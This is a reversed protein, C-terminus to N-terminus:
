DENVIETPVQGEPMKRIRDHAYKYTRKNSLSKLVYRDGELVETIQFPGRFKADLKMQNREENEILVYEGVSFRSVSAKNSDFRAKNYSASKEISKSASQRIESLDVVVNNDDAMLDLPRAVKGILLELPSAKTTRNVTCNIALQVEGLSDQWSRDKDSEVATLMSKLVSMIREVQGNARCSGTAILHLSINKSDCFDRFEKSAFCRGQDAIIRVPAGFLAVSDKVAKISSKTDIAKTHFLLVYKTFADILVFVYEKNDSKGSLKGTADIHLTHWPIVTKPIPHLEAQVKGSRSKSIKCTVCNDVFKRVYRSMGEFWYHNYLKELTKEWGLHMLSEHINNIVSWRMARPVIPLCRSRGNRQVKRHLIGSRVEYTKAMDDNLQGQDLDSIIKKIEDDRQQEALLWNSSLEAINVRKQELKVITQKTPAAPLFNRSLFDVHTMQNGSRYKVDFDFTQLFAWWRHVRPTLDVKNRSLKLSNCDTVVIFKQGHLYQRFHRVANVVALTELEYSHYRSEAPTTRKSFYAVPRRNGDVIQFLIAGYGEASADTHLEAPYQPDFIMLVPENTLIEIVKQRVEECEPTWEFPCKGSMLKYIPCFLRSFNPVFQRFYSALGVFQRVQTISQPSPLSSLAEIKRKNPRVEGAEVEYGLFEVRTKLFSCKKLNLSFGAKTLIDLVVQLREIGEDITDSVILIDDVYVIVYQNALNGLANIIARQFVSIANRLGFPMTLFEYQGDPTVFATREISEPQVPILHFGSACDLKTFFHTGHLRSIQDSILPLPYHDPVTNTNLERYDICMRDSGDHKKVLLAPSAFPSSSPRIIKAQLLEDVRDRMIQRENPSLRYPRRQVTRSPDILRIVLEGTNVRTTPFGKILYDSYQELIDVLEHLREKPIDTDISDFNVSKASACDEAARCINISRGRELTFENSSMSACLGNKLIERGLLIDSRLFADPLVHFLIETTFDNIDVQGLIQLTSYVNKNGIGVLSISNHIRKGRFKSATTETMLSCEAGSDFDFKYWEGFHNLTGSPSAVECQNIRKKEVPAPTSSRGATCHNAMHGQAGCKYCVVSSRSAQQPQVASKSPPVLTTKWADPKRARCDVRKHGLKGCAHCKLQSQSSLHPRKENPMGARVDSPAKRKLYSFAQLEQQVQQRTVLETTFALRQLRTDIQALHSMVTSVAIQEISANKWRSLLSTILRSAYAAYSENEKPRDNSLNILTAASTEVTVFRAIFLDKFQAWTMGPYSIQSLWTSASGKLAKSIMMVLQGGEITHGDLCMDATTCWSRADSDYKDPNFEPLIVNNSTSPTRLTQILERMHQNQTELLLRWPSDDNESRTIDNARNSGVESSADEPINDEEDSM